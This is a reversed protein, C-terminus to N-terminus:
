EKANEICELLSHKTAKRNIVRNLVEHFLEASRVHNFLKCFKVMESSKNPINISPKKLMSSKLKEIYLIKLESNKQVEEPEYPTFEFQNSLNFDIIFPRCKVIKEKEKGQSKFILQLGYNGSNLMVDGLNFIRILLEVTM